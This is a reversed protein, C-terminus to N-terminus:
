KFIPHIHFLFPCHFTVPSVTSYVITTTQVTRWKRCSESATYIKTRRKNLKEEEVDYINLAKKGPDTRRYYPPCSMHEIRISAVFWDMYAICHLGVNYRYIYRLIGGRYYVPRFYYQGNSHHGCVSKQQNIKAPTQVHLPRLKVVLFAGTYTHSANETNKINANVSHGVKSRRVADLGRYAVSLLPRM